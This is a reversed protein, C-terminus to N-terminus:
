VVSNLSFHNFRVVSLFCGDTKAIVLLCLGFFVAQGVREVPVVFM